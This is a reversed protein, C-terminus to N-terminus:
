MSVWRHRPLAAARLPPQPGAVAAATPAAHVRHSPWGPSTTANSGCCLWSPESHAPRTQHTHDSAPYRSAFANSPVAPACARPPVALWSFHDCELRLPTLRQPYKLRTRFLVTRTHHSPGALFFPRILPTVGARCTATHFGMLYRAIRFHDLVCML